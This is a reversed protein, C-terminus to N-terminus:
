SKEDVLEVEQRKKNEKIRSNNKKSFISLNWEKFRLHVLWKM